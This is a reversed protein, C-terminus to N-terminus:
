MENTGSFFCVTFQSNSILKHHFAIFFWKRRSSVQNIKYECMKSWYCEENDNIVDIQFVWLGINSCDHTLFWFNWYRFIIKKTDKRVLWFQKDYVYIISQIKSMWEDFYKIIISNKLLIKEKLKHSLFQKVTM